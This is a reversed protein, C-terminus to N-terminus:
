RDGYLSYMDFTPLPLSEGQLLSKMNGVNFNVKHGNAAQTIVSEFGKKVNVSTLDM